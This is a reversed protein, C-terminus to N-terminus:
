TRRLARWRVAYRGVTTAPVDTSHCLDHTLTRQTASLHQGHTCPLRKAILLVGDAGTRHRIQPTMVTRESDDLDLKRLIVARLGADVCAAVTVASSFQVLRRAHHVPLDDRGLHVGDASAALAIELRDNVIM